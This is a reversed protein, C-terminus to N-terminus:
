VKQLRKLFFIESRQGKQRGPKTQIGWSLWYTGVWHASDFIAGVENQNLPYPSFQLPDSRFARTRVSDINLVVIRNGSPFELQLKEQLERVHVRHRLSISKSSEMPLIYHWLLQGKQDISAVLTHTFRYGDFIERTAVVPQGNAGTAMYTETRYTRHYAEAIIVWQGQYDKIPHLLFQHRDSLPERLNPPENPDQRAKLAEQRNNMPTRGLEKLPYYEMFDVSEQQIGALFLGKVAKSRPESWTGFLLERGDEVRHVSGTHLSHEDDDNAFTIEGLSKGNPGFQLVKLHCANQHCQRVFGRVRQQSTDARLGELSQNKGVGPLQVQQRKNEPDIVALFPTKKFAGGLYVMGNMVQMSEIAAGPILNGQHKQVEQSLHNAYILTYSGKREDRFLM